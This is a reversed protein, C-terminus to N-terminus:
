YVLFSPNIQCGNCVKTHNAKIHSRNHDTNGTMAIDTIRLTIIGTMKINLISPITSETMEINGIVLIIIGMMETNLIALTIIGMMEISGTVQIIIETM